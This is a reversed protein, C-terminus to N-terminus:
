WWKLRLEGRAGAGSTATGSSSNVRAAGGGGGPAVGPNGVAATGAETIVGVGGGGARLSVGAPNSGPTYASGGAGGADISNLNSSAGAPQGAGGRKGSYRASASGGPVVLFTGFSTNGGPNPGAQTGNTSTVALGGAGIVVDITTPLDAVRILTAAYEGGDGGKGVTTGGSCIAIGSEGGSWAEVWVYTADGFISKNITQSTTFAQQGRTYDFGAKIKARAAAETAGYAVIDGPAVVDAIGLSVVGSKGNISSVGATVNTGIMWVTGTWSYRAKTATNYYEAGELLPQGDNDVTPPTSKPGLVLKDWRGVVAASAGANTAYTQAQNKFGEASAASASAATAFNFAENANNYTVVAIERVSLAMPNESDAWAKSMANFIGAVRDANTPFPSALVLTPVPQIAM